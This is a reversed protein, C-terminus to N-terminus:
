NKESPMTVFRSTASRPSLNIKVDVKPLVESFVKLLKKDAHEALGFKKSAL